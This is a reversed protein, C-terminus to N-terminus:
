AHLYKRVKKGCNVWREGVGWSMAVKDRQRLVRIIEDDSVQQVRELARALKVFAATKHPVYPSKTFATMNWDLILEFLTTLLPDYFLHGGAGKHLVKLWNRFTVRSSNWASLWNMQRWELNKNTFFVLSRGHDDSFIRQTAYTEAQYLAGNIVSTAEWEHDPMDEAGDLAEGLLAATGADSDSGCSETEYDAMLQSMKREEGDMEDVEDLLLSDEESSDGSESDEEGNEDEQGDDYQGSMRLRHEVIAALKEALDLFFPRYTSYGIIKVFKGPMPKRVAETLAPKVNKNTMSGNTSYELTPVRQAPASFGSSSPSPMETKFCNNIYM